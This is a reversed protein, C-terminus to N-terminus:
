RLTSDLFRISVLLPERGARVREDKSHPVIRMVSAIAPRDLVRTLHSAYVARKAIVIGSATLTPRSRPALRDHAHAATRRGRVEAVLVDIPSAVSRYTAPPLRERGSAAYIARDDGDLIYAQDHGHDDHLSNSVNEELFTLDGASWGGDRRRTVAVLDNWIAVVAQDQVIQDQAIDLAQRVMLIQRVVAVSNGAETAGHLALVLIGSIILLSLAIPAIVRQSFRWGGATNRLPAGGPWIVNGVSASALKGNLARAAEFMAGTAYSM